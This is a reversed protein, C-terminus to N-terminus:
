RELEAEIVDAAAATGGAARIEAKLAALRRAVDPDGALELVASRLGAATVEERPVHRGVGLEVLRAANMVQEGIMPLGVMPVGHYLGEMTGGMGCHTIFVDAHSLVELQPVWRHLEVNSPPEGLSAPDVHKGIAMVVHWDLDGFAEFCRRYIGPENTYASGLSVLLVPRDDAPREWTGQFSSRDGLCPGVFTYKRHVSEHNPQFSRAISVVARDPDGVYAPGPIAVGEAALWEELEAYFATVEPQDVVDGMDEEWGEYAVFTPSFQIAPVGWRGAPLRATWAGIDYVVADPRDAAFAAELVPLVSRAEALFLHMAPAPETPWEQDATPLTTPHVVPTAGAREVIDAFGPDVAYSVRHGRNVLETVVPLTPNVHGHGPINLFAIHAM